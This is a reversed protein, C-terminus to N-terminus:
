SVGRLDHFDLLWLSSRLKTLLGDVYSESVYRLTVFNAKLLGRASFIERRGQSMELIGEFVCSILAVLGKLIM